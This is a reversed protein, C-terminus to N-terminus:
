ERQGSVEAEVVPNSHLFHAFKVFGTLLLALGLIMSFVLLGGFLETAMYQLSVLSVVIGLGTAFVGLGWYAKSGTREVLYASPALLITGIMVPITQSFNLFNMM